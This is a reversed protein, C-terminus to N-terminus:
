ATPAAKAKALARVEEALAIWGEVTTPARRRADGLYKRVESFTEGGLAEGYRTYFRQEAEEPTRPPQAAPGVEPPPESQAPAAPFGSDAPESATPPRAARRKPPQTQLATLLASAEGRNLTTLDVGLSTAFATLDEDSWGLSARLGAIAERQKATAPQPETPTHSAGNGSPARLPPEGGAQRRRREEQLDDFEEVAARVQRHTAPGVTNWTSEILGALDRVADPGDEVDPEVEVILGTTVTNYPALQITETYTLTIRRVAPM